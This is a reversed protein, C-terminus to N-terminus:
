KRSLLEAAQASWEPLLRCFSPGTGPLRSCVRTSLDLSQMIRRPFGSLTLRRSLVGRGDLALVDHGAVRLTDAINNAFSDAYTPGLVLARM